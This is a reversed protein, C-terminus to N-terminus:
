HSKLMADLDAHLADDRVSPLLEKHRGKEM